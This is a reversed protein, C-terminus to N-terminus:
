LMTYVTAAAFLLFLVGSIYNVTKESIYKSALAGGTVALATALAHGATAGVAVGVPNQAAGLAITALMSRDGWEALFILGAVELLSALPRKADAGVRGSSTAEAIAEDAAALEDESNMTPSAAQASQLAKIGFFVLLAVGLIEGIPLSSRLADPVKSFAAGIGVSILTMIALAALSGAFSIWRGLKMALLAAIFFTKDGLESVFILSFAAFFGSRGLPGQMLWAQLSSAQGSAYLAIGAGALAATGLGWLVASGNSSQSWHQQKNSPEPVADAASAHPQVKSRPTVPAARLQPRCLGFGQCNHRPPCLRMGSVACRTQRAGGTHTSCHLQRAALAM